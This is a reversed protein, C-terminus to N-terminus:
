HRHVFWNFIPSGKVADMGRARELEHKLGSRVEQVLDSDSPSTDSTSSSSEVSVTIPKEKLGDKGTVYLNKAKLLVRGRLDEPSPLKTIPPRGEPPASVLTDGFVEHMISAIKDQQALSCHVEASIIIPYPSTMFAYKAIAECIDRLSM